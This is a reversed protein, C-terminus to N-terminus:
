RVLVSAMTAAKDALKGAFALNAGKLAEEAQQIFRRATDFQTRGDENLAAYNVSVRQLDRVARDLMARISAETQAQVGPGPKLTLSPATPAPREPLVVATETKPPEPKPPAPPPTRTPPTLLASEVPSPEITPLPDEPLTEVVRPPPPPPMLEPLLIPETNARAKACGVGFGAVLAVILVLKSVRVIKL